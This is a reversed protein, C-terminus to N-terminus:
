RCFSAFYRYGGTLEGQIIRSRGPERRTPMTTSGALRLGLMAKGWSIGGYGTRDDSVDGIVVSM